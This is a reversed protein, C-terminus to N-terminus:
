LDPNTKLNESLLNAARTSIAAAPVKHEEPIDGYRMGGTHPYDDIAHTMSRVIVGLVGFKGTVRAGHGRQDVCGGYARVAHSHSDDFPRNFFVIKGRLKEGLQEAEELSKVEVVQGKVGNEGTPISGGLACIPVDYPVGDITYSATEKEGRVWHPVMVPQLWVKDFNLDEMLKKGWEVAMEAEPSGSLRGGIDNALVDLWDYCEGQTLVTNFFEKIATSDTPDVTTTITTQNRQTCSSFAIIVLMALLLHRM